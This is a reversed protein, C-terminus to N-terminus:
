RKAKKSVYPNDRIYFRWPLLADEQAYDVGVRTTQIIENLFSTNEEAIRIPSDPDYLKLNNFKKTIGLASALKGPGNTLNITNTIKRRLGM